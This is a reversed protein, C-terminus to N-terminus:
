LSHDPLASTLLSRPGPFLLADCLLAGPGTRTAAAGASAPAPEAPRRCHAQAIWLISGGVIAAMAAVMANTAASGSKLDVIMAASGLLLLLLILRVVVATSVSGHLRNGCEAGALGCVVLMGVLLRTEADGFRLVGASTLSALRVVQLAFNGAQNTARMAGKDMRAVTMFVMTPPGGVGFVGSMLGSVAGTAVWGAMLGTPHEGRPRLETSRAGPLLKLDAATRVAAFALFFCGLARRLLQPHAGELVHLLVWLGLEYLLLNPVGFALCVPWDVAKSRLSVLTLYLSTPLAMACLMIQVSVFPVVGRLGLMNAVQWGLVMVIGSGFGCIGMYINAAFAAFAYLLLAPAPLMDDLQPGVFAATNAYCRLNM